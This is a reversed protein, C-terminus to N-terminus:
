LHAQRLVWSIVCITLEQWSVLSSPPNDRRCHLTTFPHYHSPSSTYPTHLLPSWVWLYASSSMTLPQLITTHTHTSFMKIPKAIKACLYVSLCVSRCLSTGHPRIVLLGDSSTVLLATCFVDNFMPCYWFFLVLVKDFVHCWSSVCLGIACNISCNKM